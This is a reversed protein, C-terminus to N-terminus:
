IKCPLFKFISFIFFLTEAMLVEAKARPEIIPGIAAESTVYYRPKLNPQRIKVPRINSKAKTFNM